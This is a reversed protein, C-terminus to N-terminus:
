KRTSDIAFNVFASCCVLMFRADAKTLTPEDLLAHRIGQADSAYGYLASFANKLAPHLAKARELEKLLAGLTAAPEKALHRALSEVASISEKISNRYDPAKRDSMLALATELHRTVGLFPRAADIAAEVSLVEEKSTIEALQDGVFRYAANESELVANCLKLFDEKQEDPGNKALFEVFDYVEFWEAKFFHERLRLRCNDWYREITDVPLKFHRLWLRLILDHLSTFVVHSSAQLKEGNSDRASEWYCITVLSWLSSRLEDDISERQALKLAPKIGVRQSFRM